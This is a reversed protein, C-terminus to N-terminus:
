SRRLEIQGVRRKIKKRKTCERREKSAKRRKERKRADM